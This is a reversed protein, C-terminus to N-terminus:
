KVLIVELNASKRLVNVGVDEPYRHVRLDVSAAGVRLNRLVIDDIFGPLMPREFVVRHHKADTRLGLVSALLLFPAAAAWAQPSCAVPYATPAESPRRPFGCFLEPLRHLDLFLSADFLGTLIRAAEQGFGYRALGAAIIANDHPWVSGNHYSMPNYREETTALTRVGWGSFMQPSLLTTALARARDPLVIRSFFCHGPNSSSVRCPRKKADLALAYTSLEPCWFARDFQERLETARRLQTLAINEEELEHAMRSIALRAAYVYGQVECLAIPGEALTGDRHFVSDGSDKWGQQVLGDKSQKGYEVFGDGDRDGPGDIWRLAALLNPWISRILELDNTADLYEGALMVFLPTSDVSGYYRGFPVERLNAMEGSRMEHVIKGPEADADPDTETAQTAALFKLVGAALDPNIPLYEIATWIGDRGFPVGFWPVGACPYPGTPTKAVLMRMDAQSRNLWDNFQENATHIAAEQAELKAREETAMHFATESALAETREDGVIFSTSVFIEKTQKAELHVRYTVERESLTTPDPAFVLRTTRVVDDLGRYMLMATAGDVRTPLRVGRRARQMGRVEFVDAFDANFELRLLFNVATPGYNTLTIREYCTGDRLLKSRLLHLTGHPISLDGHIEPNTLDAMFLLNNELVTSSLFLFPRRDLYLMETSLFRTGGHYIGQESRVSARVNGLRDLVAFTDNHMLVRQAEDALSTTAAIHYRDAEEECQNM